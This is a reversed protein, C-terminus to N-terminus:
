RSKFPSSSRLQTRTESYDSEESSSFYGISDCFVDSFRISNNDFTVYNIISSNPDQNWGRGLRADFQWFMASTSNGEGYVENDKEQTNFGYRYGVVSLSRGPMSSGFAYYDTISMIDPNFYDIQLDANDDVGIMRDSISVLVNGLHNTLEYQKKGKYLTNVFPLSPVSLTYLMGPNITKDVFEGNGAYGMISYEQTAM